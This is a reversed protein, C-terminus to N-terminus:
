PQPSPSTAPHLSVRLLIEEASVGNVDRALDQSLSRNSAAAEDLSILSVVPESMLRCTQYSQTPRYFLLVQSGVSHVVPNGNVKTCLSSGLFHFSGGPSFYSLDARLDQGKFFEELRLDLKRGPIGQYFGATEKLIVGRAIIEADDVAEDLGKWRSKLGTNVLEIQHCGSLAVPQRQLAEALAVRGHRIEEILEFDGLLLNDRISDVQSPGLLQHNLHLGQSAQRTGVFIPYSDRSKCFVTEAPIQDAIASGSTYLLCISLIGFLRRRPM